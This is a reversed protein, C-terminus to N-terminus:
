KSFEYLIISTAVGVNLSEVVDNMEIYIFKDCLEAVEEHMGNGENGMIIAFKEKKELSKLNNGHTVKTGYIYYNDKKLNNLVDILNDRIINIHFLLGQSARIVKSNYLDVSNDSLIITDINFAVSSRIITGLNGPDQIDDLILIKSGLEKTNNKKCIGIIKQPTDLESIYNLVNNSIYNTEIDLPFIQNEELLLEVLNGTKYAELVLHEGEVLFLGTKDRYKKTNLKKIDKIKKNDISTYLM